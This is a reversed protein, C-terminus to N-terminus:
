ERKAALPDRLDRHGGPHDADHGMPELHTTMHVTMGPFSRTIAEEVSTARRHAEAMSMDGPLLMHVEVWLADSSQRHRLQHYAAIVGETQARALVAVLQETDAPSAQDLLGGFAGRILALATWVINLGVAIAVLPDLWVLGTLWVIGVGVLVGLSTWMDALVHQGNAVLILASHRKGVRVLTLGLALNILMLGGTILLGLDLRRVEPGRVLDVVGTVIIFLAAALILAGEFGASFFAIKGHGYPHGRDAPQQAFWLSAAAIATAALHIVSEAADSLLATSGTLSFATLKGALMLLSVLLSAAMARARIDM